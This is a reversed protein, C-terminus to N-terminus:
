VATVVVIILSAMNEQLLITFTCINGATIYNNKSQHWVVETLGLFHLTIKGVTCFLMSAHSRPLVTDFRVSHGVSNGLIEARESAVREAVSVASIRRPQLLFM